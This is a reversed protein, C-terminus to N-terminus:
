FLASRFLSFLNDYNLKLINWIAFIPDSDKRIGAYLKINESKRREIECRSTCYYAKRCSILHEM